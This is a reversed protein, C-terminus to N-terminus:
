TLHTLLEVYVNTIMTASGRSLPQMSFIMAYPHQTLIKIPSSTRWWAVASETLKIGPQSPSKRPLICHKCYQCCGDCKLSFHNNDRAKTEPAKSSVWFLDCRCPHETRIAALPIIILLYTGDRILITLLGIGGGRPLTLSKYLTMAFILVDFVLEGSWAM